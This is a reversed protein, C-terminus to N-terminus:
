LPKTTITLRATCQFLMSTEVILLTVSFILFFILFAFFTSILPFPTFIFFILSFPPFHLSRLSFSPLYFGRFLSSTLSFGRSFAQFHQFRIFHLFLRLFLPLTTWFSFPLNSAFFFMFIFRFSISYGFEVFFNNKIIIVFHFDCKRTEDISNVLTVLTRWGFSQIADAINVHYILYVITSYFFLRMIKIKENINIIYYEDRM